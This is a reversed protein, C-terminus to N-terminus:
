LPRYLHQGVKFVDAKKQKLRESRDRMSYFADLVKSISEYAKVHSYQQIAICHFDLPKELAEDEYIINPSFNGESIIKVVTFLADELRRLQDGNLSSAPYAGDIGAKHCLERCLLPSFGKISNLLFKEISTNVNRCEKLLKEPELLDPITKDQGPPLTYPRAPM